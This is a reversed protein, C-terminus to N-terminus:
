YNNFICKGRSLVENKNYIQLTIQYADQSGYVGEPLGNVWFQFGGTQPNQREKMNATICM